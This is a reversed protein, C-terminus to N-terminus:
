LREILRGHRWWESVRRSAEYERLAEGDDVRQPMTVRTSCRSRKRTSVCRLLADDGVRLISLEMFSRLLRAASDVYATSEIGAATANRYCQDHERM